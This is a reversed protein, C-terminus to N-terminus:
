VLPVTGTGAKGVTERSRKGGKYRSNNAGEISCTGGRSMERRKYSRSMSTAKKRVPGRRSTNEVAFVLDRPTKKGTESRACKAERDL